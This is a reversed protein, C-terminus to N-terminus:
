GSNDLAEKGSYLARNNCRRKNQKLSVVQNPVHRVLQCPFCNLVSFLAEIGVADYRTINYFGTCLNVIEDEDKPRAHERKKEGIVKKKRGTGNYAILTHPLAHPSQVLWFRVFLISITIGLCLFVCATQLILHSVLIFFTSYSLHTISSCNEPPTPPDLVSGPSFSDPM